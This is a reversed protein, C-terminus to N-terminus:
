SFPPTIGKLGDEVFIAEENEESVLIATTGSSKLANIFIENAIVDLKKQDEGQVNSSGALGTRTTLLPYIPLHTIPLSHHHDHHNTLSLLHCPM